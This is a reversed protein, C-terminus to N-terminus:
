GIPTPRPSRPCLFLMWCFPSIQLFNRPSRLDRSGREEDRLNGRGKGKRKRELGKVRVSSCLIFHTTKQVWQQKTPNNHPRLPSPLQTFGSSLLCSVFAGLTSKSILLSFTPCLGQLPWPVAARLSLDCCQLHPWLGGKVLLSHFSKLWWLERKLLCRMRKDRMPSKPIVHFRTCLITKFSYLETCINHHIGRDGKGEDKSKWIPSTPTHAAWLSKGKWTHNM